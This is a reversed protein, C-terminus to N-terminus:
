NEKSIDREKSEENPLPHIRGCDPCKGMKLKGNQLEKKLTENIEHELEAIGDKIDKSNKNLAEELSVGISEKLIENLLHKGFEKSSVEEKEKTKVVNNSKHLAEEFIAKIKDSEAFIKALIDIVETENKGISFEVMAVGDISTIKLNLGNKM